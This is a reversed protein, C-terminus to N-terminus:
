SIEDFIKLKNQKKVTVRGYDVDICLNGCSCITNEKPLSPFIDGCNTCVYFTNDGAPYGLSSKFNIYKRM